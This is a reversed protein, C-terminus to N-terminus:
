IYIYIPSDHEWPFTDGARISKYFWYGAGGVGRRGGSHCANVQPNRAREERGARREERSSGHVAANCTILGTILRRRTCRRWFQENCRQKSVYTYLTVIITRTLKRFFSFFLLSIKEPFSLTFSFFSVFPTTTTNQSSTSRCLSVRLYIFDILRSVTDLSLLLPKSSEDRGRLPVCCSMFLRREGPTRAAHNRTPSNATSWGAFPKNRLRQWWGGDWPNERNKKGEERGEGGRGTGRRRRHIGIVVNDRAVSLGNGYFGRTAAGGRGGEGRSGPM